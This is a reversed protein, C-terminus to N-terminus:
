HLRCWYFLQNANVGHARAVRGVSAGEAMTEVVILRKEGVSRRQRKGAASPKVAVMETSTDM